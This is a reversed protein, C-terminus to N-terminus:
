QVDQEFPIISFDEIDSKITIGPINKVADKENLIADKNIEEKVRIFRQLGLRKLFDMVADA